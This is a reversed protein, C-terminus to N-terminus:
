EQRYHEYKPTHISEQLPLVLLCTHDITLGLIVLHSLNFALIHPLSRHRYSINTHLLCGHFM